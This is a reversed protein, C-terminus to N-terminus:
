PFRIQFTVFVSNEVNIRTPVMERWHPAALPVRQALSERGRFRSFCGQQDVADGRREEAVRPRNGKRVAPRGLRPPRREARSPFGSREGGGAADWAGDYRQNPHAHNQVAAKSFTPALGRSTPAWSLHAAAAHLPRGCSTPARNSHARGGRPTPPRRTPARSSHAHGGRPRGVQTLPRWTFHAGASWKSISCVITTSSARLVIKLSIEVLKMHSLESEPRYWDREPLRCRSAPLPLAPLPAGDYYFFHIETKKLRQETYVIWMQTINM